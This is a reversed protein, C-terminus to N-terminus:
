RAPALLDGIVEGKTGPEISVTITVESTTNAPITLLENCPTDTNVTYTKADENEYIISIEMAGSECTADIQFQYDTKEKLSFTMPSPSYEDNYEEPYFHYEFGEVSKYETEKGSCASLSFIFCIVFLMAAIKKFRNM